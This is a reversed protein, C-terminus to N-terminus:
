GIFDVLALSRAPERPPARTPLGLHKLIKVITAPDEIAAIVHMSASIGHACPRAPVTVKMKGQCHPYQERDINGVPRLYPAIAPRPLKSYGNLYVRGTGHLVRIHLFPWPSTRAGSGLENEDNDGGWPRILSLNHFWRPAYNLM